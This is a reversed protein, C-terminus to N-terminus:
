KKLNLKAYICLKFTLFLEIEFFNLKAYTRLKFILVTGDWGIWNLILVYSIEIQGMFLVRDPEVVWPWLQGPFSPLLPTGGCERFSWCLQFIVMLNNLTMFLVSTLPIKGRQLSATLTNQLGLRSPLQMYPDFLYSIICAIM